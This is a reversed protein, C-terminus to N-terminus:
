DLLKYMREPYRKFGLRFAIEDSINGKYDPSTIDVLHQLTIAFYEAVETKARRRDVLPTKDEIDRIMKFLAGWVEAEYYLTDDHVPM